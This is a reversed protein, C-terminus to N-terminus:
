LYVTSTCAASWATRVEPNHELAHEYNEQINKQHILEEIRTQADVDLPDAELLEQERRLAENRARRLMQAMTVNQFSRATLCNPAFRARTVRLLHFHACVDGQPEKGQGPHDSLNDQKYSLHVRARHMRSLGCLVPPAPVCHLWRSTACWGVAAGISGAAGEPVGRGKGGAVVGAGTM